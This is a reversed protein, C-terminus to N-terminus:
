ANLLKKISPWGPSYHDMLRRFGAGHDPILTHVLEHILVYRLCEPPKKALNLSLRIKKTRVNCSGWRSVMKRIDWGSCKLGTETEIQPLIYGITAELQKKYFKEEASQVATSTYGESLTLLLFGDKNDLATKKGSVARVPKKEGWLWLYGGDRCDNSANRIRYLTKQRARDIWDKKSAVFDLVAKRSLSCPASVKVSGDTRDVTLRLTRIRKRIIKVETGDILETM